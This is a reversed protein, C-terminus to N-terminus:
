CLWALYGMDDSKPQQFHRWAGSDRKLIPEVDSVLSKGFFNCMTKEFRINSRAKIIIDYNDHQVAM